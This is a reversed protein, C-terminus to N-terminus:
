IPPAPVFGALRKGGGTPAILLTDRGERALNLLHLQHALRALRVLRYHSRYSPAQGRRLSRKLGRM